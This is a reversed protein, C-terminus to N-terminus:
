AKATRAAPKEMTGSLSVAGAKCNRYTTMITLLARCRADALEAASGRRRVQCYKATKGIASDM